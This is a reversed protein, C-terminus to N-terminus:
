RPIRKEPANVRSLGAFFPKPACSLIQQCLFPTGEMAQRTRNEHEVLEIFSAAVPIGLGLKTYRIQLSIFGRQMALAVEPDPDGSINRVSLRHWALSHGLVIRNISIQCDFCYQRQPDDGM